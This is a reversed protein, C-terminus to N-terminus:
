DQPAALGLRTALARLRQDKTWLCAGDIAASALLHVDIYGVGSGHLRKAEIFAMVEAHEAITIAGLQELLNITSERSALNGCALEGVVFPHM